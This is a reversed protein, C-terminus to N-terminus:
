EKEQVGLFIEEGFGEAELGMTGVFLTIKMKHIHMYLVWSIKRFFNCIQDVPVTNSNRGIPLLMALNCWPCGLKTSDSLM